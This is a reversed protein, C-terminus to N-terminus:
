RNIRAPFYEYAGANINDSERLITSRNAHEERAKEVVEPDASPDVIGKVTVRVTQVEYGDVARGSISGRRLSDEHALRVGHKTLHGAIRNPDLDKHIPLKYLTVTVDGSLEFTSAGMTSVRGWKDGDQAPTSTPKDQSVVAVPLDTEAPTPVKGFTTLIPIGSLHDALVEAVARSLKSEIPPLAKEALEVRRDENDTHRHALLEARKAAAVALAYDEASVTDLGRKFQGEMRAVRTSAESHEEQYRGINDKLEELTERAAQGKILAERDANSIADTYTKKTAV